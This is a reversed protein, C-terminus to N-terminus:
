NNCCFKIRFDLQVINIDNSNVDDDDSVVAVPVVLDVNKEWVYWDSKSFFIFFLFWPSCPIETPTVTLLRSVSRYCIYFSDSYLPFDNFYWAYDALDTGWAVLSARAVKGRGETDRWNCYQCPFLLDIPSFVRGQSKLMHDSNNLFPM